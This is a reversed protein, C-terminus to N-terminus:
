VFYGIKLRYRGYVALLVTSALLFTDADRRLKLPRSQRLFPRLEQIGAVEVLPLVTTEYILHEFSMLVAPTFLSLQVFILNISGFTM